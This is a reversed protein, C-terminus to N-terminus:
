GEPQEWDTYTANWHAKEGLKGIGMLKNLFM